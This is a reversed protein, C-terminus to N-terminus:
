NSVRTLVSEVTSATWPTTPAGTVGGQPDSHTHANFATVLKSVLALADAAAGGNTLSISSAAQIEVNGSSDLEISGGSPQTLAMQGGAGLTVQLQHTSTNYHIITGDSFQTYRDAPTLGSPASDVTSPVGGTVIGNEDWEDMVVSVQEGIDPQWFDKDNMTKMVQVPLWWSLVNAQDPFQVRVRYPPVSEIQAVIGTRYPPHFQETYPGRVSDPM